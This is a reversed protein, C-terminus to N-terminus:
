RWVMRTHLLGTVGSIWSVKNALGDALGDAIGGTDVHWSDTRFGLGESQNWGPAWEGASSQPMTVSSVEQGSDPVGQEGSGAAGSPCRQASGDAFEDGASVLLAGGGLRLRSPGYCTQGTPKKVLGADFSRFSSHDPQLVTPFTMGISGSGM